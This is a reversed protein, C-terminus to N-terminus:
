GDAPEAAGAKLRETHEVAERLVFRGSERYTIMGGLMICLGVVESIEEPTAGAEVAYRTHGTPPPNTKRAICEIGLIILEKTKRDLAGGSSLDRFLGQRMSMYSAFVDPQYRALLEFEREVDPNKYYGRAYDWASAMREEDTM